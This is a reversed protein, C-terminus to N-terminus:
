MFRCEQYGYKGVRVAMMSKISYGHENLQELWLKVTAGSPDTRLMESGICVERITSKPPMWMFTADKVDKNAACTSWMELEPNDIGFIIRREKEYKWMTNKTLLCDALFKRLVEDKGVEFSKVSSLNLCPLSNKYHVRKCKIKTTDVEIAIRVGKSNDGYHAWMLMESCSGQIKSDSASFIRYVNDFIHRYYLQRHLIPQVCQESVNATSFLKRMLIEECLERTPEGRAVGMCDFPDNFECPRSVKLRVGEPRISEIFRNYSMYKYVLM